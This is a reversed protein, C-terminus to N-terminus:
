AALRTECLHRYKNLARVLRNSGLTPIDDVHVWKADSVEAEQLCLKDDYRATALFMFDHHFHEPEGKNANAPVYHTDFDLAIGSQMTWEHPKVTVGTEEYGERLACDLLSAEGEFHGGPQLWRGLANHHIVLVHREDESLILASCTLHGQANSRIFINEARELQAFLAQMLRKEAPFAQAYQRIEQEVIFNM